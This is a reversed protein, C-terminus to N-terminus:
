EQRLATIPDLRAARSAPYVGAVVGVGAGMIVGLVVSMPSVSAPLPSLKDIALTLAIGAIIGFTAGVTAIATSEALFQSLVDRRRAGLSKRLGIERTREAVAMLMINMIVIGGIVLSVLVVGPLVIVLIRSIGAWFQQVGESTDLVFNNDQKPRLHRRSRMIGEAQSMAERMEPDSHAKVLFADLIGPPNVLNQAPSLAPVVVFRDLPFGLISGQREVVGVVRYPVGGIRVNRGLPSRDVFLRKAVADGLVVIPAGSRNEEGTFPRGTAIKLNKIDFYRESAATLEIDRAEKNNYSVTVNDSSQWATIVPVTLGVSIAEADSFRIRPRRQWARWISDPVNPTFMPRRRLQFTNVGYLTQAFKETMYRNVGNVISWAGILSAVGIFVGLLSFGSKLKQSRITQLALRMAEFFRV